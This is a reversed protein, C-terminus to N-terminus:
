PLNQVELRLRHLLQRTKFSRTHSLHGLFSSTAQNFKSKTIQGKRVQRLLKQSKKIIRNKTKTRPVTCHPLLVAGLFDIGQHFNYILIKDPHLELKLNDALFKQIKPILEVLENRNQSLIVFDDCYRVYRKMGLQTKVYWDFPNMYVNAFVQSTVNGLPLGKNPTKHFSDIVKKLLGITRSCSIKEGILSRFIEHDISDFFKKVDCKLAFAPKTYNQSLKRLMVELKKIGAHTGKGVRSSYSDYIFVSDFIGYLVRYVAQYFVRDRVSAKHISRPKPDKISFSAYGDSKWETSVLKQRLEFINNELNLSFIIVDRKKVKGKKFEEWAQFLNEVSTIHEFIRGNLGGGCGKLSRYDKM